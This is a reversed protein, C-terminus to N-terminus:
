RWTGYVNAGGQSELLSLQRGNSLEPVVKHDLDKLQVVAGLTAFEQLFHKSANVSCALYFLTQGRTNGGITKGDPSIFAIRQKPFAIAVSAQFLMQWWRTETANNVLVIAQAVHGRQCQEILKEIAQLIIPMGYPPNMWVNVGQAYKKKNKQNAELWTQDFASTSIDFIREAGIIVNASASSFPDLHITGM